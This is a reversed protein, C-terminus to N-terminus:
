REHAKKKMLADIGFPKNDFVLIYTCLALWGLDRMLTKYSIAEEAESSAFCGCAMDLGRYLAISLAATFIIMM